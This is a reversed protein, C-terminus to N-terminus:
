LFHMGQTNWMKATYQANKDMTTKKPMTRPLTAVTHSFKFDVSGPKRGTKKKQGCAQAIGRNGGAGVMRGTGTGTGTNGGSGKM